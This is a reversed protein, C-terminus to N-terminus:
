ALRLETHRREWVRQNGGRRLAEPACRNEGPGANGDLRQDVIELSAMREILKEVLERGDATLMRDGDQFEGLAGQDCRRRLGVHPDQEIAVQWSGEAREQGPVVDVGHM